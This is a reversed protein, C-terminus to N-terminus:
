RFLAVCRYSQRAILNRVSESQAGSLLRARTFEVAVRNRDWGMRYTWNTLDIRKMRNCALLKITVVAMGLVNESIIRSAVFGM